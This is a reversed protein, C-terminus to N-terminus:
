KERELGYFGTTALFARTPALFDNVDHRPRYVDDRLTAPTYLHWLEYDDDIGTMERAPILERSACCAPDSNENGPVIQTFEYVDVGPTKRDLRVDLRSLLAEGVSVLRPKCAHAARFFRDIQMGVYDSRAAGLLGSDTPRTPRFNLGYCLAAYDDPDIQSLRAESGLLDMIKDQFFRFRRDPLHLANTTLDVLGKLSLDFKEEAGGNESMRFTRPESLVHLLGFIFAHAVAALEEADDADVEYLYWYEDGIIKALFLKRIDIAGSTSVFRYFSEEIEFLIQVYQEYLQNVKGFDNRGARFMARKLPTSGVLDLSISIFQVSKEPM